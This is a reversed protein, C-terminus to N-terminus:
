LFNVATFTSLNTSNINAIGIDSQSSCLLSSCLSISPTTALCLFYFGIFSSDDMSPSYSILFWNRSSMRNVSPFRSLRGRCRTPSNTIRCPCAIPLSARPPGCRRREHITPKPIVPTECGNQAHRSKRHPPHFIM